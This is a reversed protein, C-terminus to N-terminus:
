GPRRARGRDWDLHRIERPGTRSAPRHAARHLRPRASGTTAPQRRRRSCCPASRRGCRSTATSASRAPAPRRPRHRHGSVGRPPRRTRSGCCAPRRRAPQDRPDQRREEEGEGARDADAPPQHRPEPRQDRDARGRPRGRPQGLGQRHRDDRGARGLDVRPVHQLLRAPQQHRLRPRLAPLRVGGRQLDQGLHLLDGRGPEDLGRLTEGILEFAEDWRDARLAHADRRRVMPHVLRGQHGLWYDTHQQLDEISHQAFFEPEVHDTTAEEAVAKAGNECFEATHRHEPTRTPGPAGRATSGTPRTSSSCPGRRAPRCGHERHRAEHLGRRRARGRRGEEAHGVEIDNEDIDALPSKRRLAMAAQTGSRLVPM